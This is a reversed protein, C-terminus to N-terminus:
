LKDPKKKVADNVRFSFIIASGYSAKQMESFTRSISFGEPFYGKGKFVVTIGRLVEGRWWYREM